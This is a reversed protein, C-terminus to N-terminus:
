SFPHKSVLHQQKTNTLDWGQQIDFSLGREGRAGAQRSFRPPSFLEAVTCKSQRQKDWAESHALLCRQERKTMARTPGALWQDTDTEQEERQVREPEDSAVAASLLVETQDGEEADELVNLIFQGSVNVQLPRPPGGQLSATEAAFDLKADLSKLTNRSLLLPARGKIIAAEIRGRKGHLRVPMSVARESLEEQGNGFRFLNQQPKSEPVDMEKEQYLRMFDNLTQQGVLTRSCGSDIIGFGPSSVLLVEDTVMAAGNVKDGKGSPNNSPCNRAWHGIQGCKRCRSKKQIDTLDRSFQKKVSAAQGFKRAKQLKSIEVRKEKWTAALVEAVEAEDFVESNSGSASDHFGHEALFAEM